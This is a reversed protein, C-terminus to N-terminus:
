YIWNGSRVPKVYQCLSLIMKNILSKAEFFCSQFGTLDQRSASNPDVSYLLRTPYDIKPNGKQAPSPSINSREILGEFKMKEPYPRREVESRSCLAVHGRSNWPTLFLIM